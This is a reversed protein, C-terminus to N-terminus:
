FGTGWQPAHYSRVLRRPFFVPPKPPPRFSSPAELGGGQFFFRGFPSSSVDPQPRLTRLAPQPRFCAQILDTSALIQIEGSFYPPAHFFVPVLGGDFNNGTLPSKGPAFTKQNGRKSDPIFFLSVVFVAGCVLNTPGRPFLPYPSGPLCSERVDM